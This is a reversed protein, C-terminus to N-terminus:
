LACSKLTMGYSLCIRHIGDTRPISDSRQGDRMNASCEPLAKAYHPAVDAQSHTSNSSHRGAAWIASLLLVSLPHQALKALSVTFFLADTRVNPFINLGACLSM